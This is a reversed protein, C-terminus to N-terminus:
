VLITLSHFQSIMPQMPLLSEAAFGSLSGPLLRRRHPTLIVMLYYLSNNASHVDATLVSHRHSISLRRPLFATGITTVSHRLNVSAVFISNQEHPIFAASIVAVSLPKLFRSMLTLIPELDARLIISLM